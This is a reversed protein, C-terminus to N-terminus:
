GKIAGKTLGSIIFKRSVIFLILMPVIVVTTAAMLLQFDSGAESSYVMLGFPLTRNAVSNTVLSPWLYANWSGIINLLAVTILIPKSIPVLIKRLFRLDSCGDVKAALYLEHPVTSFFQTIMYIYFTSSMYPVVLAAKTDMLGLTSITSFNTIILMEGPIMLTALMLSFILRKAPFDFKALVFAGLTSTILVLVTTALAVLISNITYTIYPAQKLAEAYNSFLFQSPLFIPPVAIAEELSKLSTSLMWFFPFLVTLSGIILLIIVITLQLYNRNSKM